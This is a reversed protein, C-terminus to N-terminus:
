DNGDDGSDDGNSEDNGDSTDGHGGNGDRVMVKTFLMPVRDSGLWGAKRDMAESYCGWLVGQAEGFGWSEM